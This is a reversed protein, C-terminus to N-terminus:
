GVALPDVAWNELGYFINNQQPDLGGLRGWQTLVSGNKFCIPIIPANEALYSYLAQAAAIREEGQAACLAALMSDTERDSWGGYNLSGSSSLLANLNFDATLLVEGIYLDFDGSSLASLYDSWSLASVEVALGAAQLQYAVYDAASTKASNESNVILRLPSSPVGTAQLTEALTAPSYGWQEALEADYLPSDPHVPLVAPVAHGAFPISAITDRDLGRGLARRAQATRCWGSKVNLGLYILDSTNYDWVEFSGSYGLANTATLDTDLATVEGSDFSAILTDTQQIPYLRISQAPVAKHQWWDSRAALMPTGEDEALLYPGTGFPRSGDDLAIPIDLLTPLAGNPTSLTITVTTEDGSISRVEELRGSYRSGSSLALELAQAAISGTLPTGNSFAVGSRLTFEWRLGDESVTYSQCLVGVAQFSGDVAFLPEYLLPALALNARNEALVPHLSYEPYYALTFPPREAPEAPEDAAPASLDSAPASSSSSSDPVPARECGGLGLLLAACLALSLLKRM